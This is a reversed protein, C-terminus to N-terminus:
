IIHHLKDIISEILHRLHLKYKGTLLKLVKITLGMSRCEKIVFLVIDGVFESIDCKEGVLYISNLM